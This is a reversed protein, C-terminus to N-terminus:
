WEEFAGYGYFLHWVKGDEADDGNIEDLVAGNDYNTWTVPINGAIRISVTAEEGTHMTGVVMDEDFTLKTCESHCRIIIEKQVDEVPRHDLPDGCDFAYEEM